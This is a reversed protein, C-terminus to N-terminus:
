NQINWKSTLIYSLGREQAARLEQKTIKECLMHLRKNVVLDHCEEVREQSCKGCHIGNGKNKVPPFLVIDMNEGTRWALEYRKATKLACGVEEAIERPARNPDDELMEYVQERYSTM